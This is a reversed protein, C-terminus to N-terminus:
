VSMKLEENRTMIKKNVVPNAYMQLLIERANKTFDEKPLGSKSRGLSLKIVRGRVYNIFAIRQINSYQNKFERTGHLLDYAIYNTPWLKYIRHMEDDIAEGLMKIKENKNQIQRMREIAFDLERGVAINVRGKHGTLGTLMSHFDEGKQKTYSGNYRVHLLEHTKLLDCPDFEYSVCMPIINLDILADELPKDGSMAFMKLLGTSTRDDGDKSRGERQAIWLSGRRNCILDRIYNSLRLSYYYVEKANIDRNVIVNKNSRVLDRVMQTKLLNDGIAIETTRYGQELLSVNLLASDLIIDRHNSIFLYGQEKDIFEINSFSLGSTTMQTIVKMAPASIEEQFQDVTRISEFMKAISTKSLGPYVWRMAKILMPEQALRNMAETLEADNYPRIENFDFIDLPANQM